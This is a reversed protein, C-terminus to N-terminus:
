GSGAWDHEQSQKKSIECHRPTRDEQDNVSCELVRSAKLRLEIDLFRQSCPDGKSFAIRLERPPLVTM